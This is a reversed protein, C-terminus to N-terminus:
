TTNKHKRRSGVLLRIVRLVYPPIVTALMHLHRDTNAHAMYVPRQTAPRQDEWGDRDRDGELKGGAEPEGSPEVQLEFSRPDEPDANAAYWERLQWRM